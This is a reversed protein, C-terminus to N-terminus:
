IAQGGPSDGCFLVVVAGAFAAGVVPLAATAM